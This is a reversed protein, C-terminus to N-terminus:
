SVFETHICIEESKLFVASHARIGQFPRAPTDTMTIDPEAETVANNTNNTNNVENAAKSIAWNIHDVLAKPNRGM